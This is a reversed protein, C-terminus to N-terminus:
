SDLSNENLLFDYIGMITIGAENRWVPTNGSVIIIKKFSDPIKVLSAQEQEVKEQDPLAFASQIYYRQSAHNVVFDVELQKRLKKGNEDTRVEVVGVDVM